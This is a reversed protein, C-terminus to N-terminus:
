LSGWDDRSGCVYGLVAGSLFAVLIGLITIALMKKKKCKAAPRNPANEIERQAVRYHKRNKSGAM